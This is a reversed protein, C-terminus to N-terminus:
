TYWSNFLSALYGSVACAGSDGKESQKADKWNRASTMSPVLMLQSQLNQVYHVMHPEKAFGSSQEAALCEICDGAWERRMSSSLVELLCCQVQLAGEPWSMEAIMDQMIGRWTPWGVQPHKLYNTSAYWAFPRRSAVPISRLISHGGPMPHEERNLRRRLQQPSEKWPLPKVLPLKKTPVLENREGRCNMGITSNNHRATTSIPKNSPCLWYMSTTM